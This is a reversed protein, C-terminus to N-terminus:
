CAHYHLTMKIRSVLTSMQDQPHKMALVALLQQEVLGLLVSNLSFKPKAAIAIPKVQGWTGLFFNGGIKHQLIHSAATHSVSSGKCAQSWTLCLGEFSGDKM